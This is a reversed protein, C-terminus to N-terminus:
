ISTLTKDIANKLITEIFNQPQWEDWNDFYEYLNTLFEKNENDQIESRTFDLCDTTILEDDIINDVEEDEEDYEEEDEKDYEEEDEEEFEQQLEEKVENFDKILDKRKLWTRTEYILAYKIDLATVADRDCIKVHKAATKMANEVFLSVLSLVDIESIQTESSQTAGVFGTKMFSYDSM